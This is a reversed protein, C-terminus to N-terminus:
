PNANQAADSKFRLAHKPANSPPPVPGPPPLAGNMRLGVFSSIALQKPAAHPAVLQRLRQRFRSHPQHQRKQTGPRAKTGRNQHVMFSPRIM